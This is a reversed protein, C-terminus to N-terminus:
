VSPLFNHKGLNCVSYQGLQPSVPCSSTSPWARGPSTLRGKVIGAKCFLRDSIRLWFASPPHELSEHVNRTFTQPLLQRQWTLLNPLHKHQIQLVSLGNFEEPKQHSQLNPLWLRVNWSLKHSFIDYPRLSIRLNIFPHNSLFHNRYIFEFEMVLITRITSYKERNHGLASLISM